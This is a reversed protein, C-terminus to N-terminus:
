ALSKSVVEYVDKSCKGSDLIRQLEARMREQRLVDYRRWQTLPTLLRAAVQPNLSDLQMLFDAHFRYAAGDARHFGAPNRMAFAGILARVRNPNRIHFDAHEALARVREFTEPQPSSAQLAFWKDLVLADERWRLYFDEVAAQAAAHGNHLLASLAAMADTMNDAGHYQELCEAGITEDGLLMLYHLCRNKLRRRAVAAVDIRYEGSDRNVQLTQLLAARHAAALEQQLSRHAQHLLQPDCGEIFEAVYSEQPLTLAEAVLAPDLASDDLTHAFAESLGAASVSQEGRQLAAYRELLVKLALQQGADWRNFPDSDHGMLFALEEDRYDIDAKVPASFGRLLSPVVDAPVDRFTWSQEAEGLLLVREPPAESEGALKLPLANGDRDLLATTLPILLPVKQEQGPTAPTYQAIRLTLSRSVEDYERRVTLQPTGAQSYWGMFASLDRDNAEAMARIFDDCTVAQGDHLEFYRDSGKRFGEAGLLTHLMRILEAGKEYVTLTYFNNIEVYSDPRVPHAMPGGDEAFQHSRLLTVDDIRKVAASNMDASFQQDRFVTFGEKLSLQFWDRCTVRNGSWNHFYEHAIVSEIGEFDADTATEQKALVFRSNFINLGKNEMAGMNFDDVAVLMYIDLDYERGYHQEDWAMAKQLSTMAHATKEENGHQVYIQLTIERGSMTTFRDEVCALDGAVLAFLYCPKPFPDHWAIFHRGGDLEGREVPNGNALLVPYKQKDAVLTTTFVTMVDPRDPYYTIKRFGEAECQTCFNGGSTYLGELATNASPDIRTVVELAFRQPPHHLTLSEGDVTYEDAGVERGDIRLALLELEQGELRLEGAGDKARLQLRATVETASEDLAFHLDLSEVAYPYPTYDKLYITQPTSETQM